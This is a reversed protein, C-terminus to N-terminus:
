TVDQHSGCGCFPFLPLINYHPTSSFVTTVSIRRLINSSLWLSPASKLNSHQDTLVCHIFTNSLENTCPNTFGFKNKPRQWRSIQMNNVSADGRDGYGEMSVPFCSFCQHLRPLDKEDVSCMIRDKFHKDDSSKRHIFIFM